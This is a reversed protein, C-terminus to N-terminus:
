ETALQRKMWGLLHAYVDYRNTENLLEHRSDEYLKIELDRIGATQYARFVAKVGKGFAGVPDKEGATLLIPLDKPVSEIVARTQADEIASFLNYYGNATFRFNCWPDANYADVIKEDRTLWDNPTRSPEFNKNYAGLVQKNLLESRYHWGRAAAVSRCLAKGAELAALPQSGTGMIIVGALNEGRRAIYQRLLFSGMSHGLMFYPVGPFRRETKHRLTHLDKLVCLDGNKDCFYGHEEESTVSAGHGLHDNGVVCIGNAALYRAFDDYRDIYECMGHCIQLIAKPKGSPLWEIGHIMTRDDRSPYYLDHKM